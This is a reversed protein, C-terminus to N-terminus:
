RQINKTTTLHM